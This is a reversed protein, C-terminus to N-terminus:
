DQGISSAGSSFVRVSPNGRYRVKSAGSATADLKNVASVQVKSAGSADITAASTSLDFGNLESAGSVRARLDSAVGSIDLRSAGSLTVDVRDFQYGYINSKVAGSLVIGSLMPTTITIYTTHHRSGTRDFKGFNIKLSNGNTIVQLDEINRRDGNAMVSYESGQRITVDLADSVEVTEFSNVPYQKEQQQLAGPDENICSTLILGAIMSLLFTQKMKIFTQMFSM